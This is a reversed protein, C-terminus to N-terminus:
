AYNPKFTTVEKNKELTELIDVKGALKMHYDLRVM